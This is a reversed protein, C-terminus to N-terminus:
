SDLFQLLVGPRDQIKKLKEYAVILIIIQWYWSVLMAIHPVVVTEDMTLGGSGNPNFYWTNKMNFSVTDNEENDVINVKEKWESFAIKIYMTDRVEWSM